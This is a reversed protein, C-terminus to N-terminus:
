GTKYDEALINEFFVNGFPVVGDLDSHNIETNLLSNLPIVNVVVWDTIESVAYCILVKEGQYELIMSGNNKTIKTLWPLQEKSGNKKQDTHAVITGERDSVCFFSGEISKKEELVSDMFEPNFNLVLVAHMNQKM